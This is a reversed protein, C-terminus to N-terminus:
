HNSFVKLIRPPQRVLNELIIGNFKLGSKRIKARRTLAVIKEESNDRWNSPKSIKSDFQKNRCRRHPLTIDVLYARM